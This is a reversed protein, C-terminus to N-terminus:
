KLVNLKQSKCVARFEPAYTCKITAVGLEYTGPRDLYYETEISHTGQGLGYYSYRVETDRPSVNKFSDSWSLQEVPEMCAAKSDIVTVMDYNRECTYTLRVTIRDGVHLEEKNTIIERKITMGSGRSEVDSIPQLFQAFVAGWSLGGSFKEIKLSKTSASMETEIYGENGQSDVILKEGDTYFVSSSDNSLYEDADILLAHVANVSDIPTDWKQTRKENLLWKQMEKFTTKDEPCLMYLAEMGAVHTPIKYSHWSFTARHTDFTRGRNEYNKTYQRLSEAYIMAREHEGAYELIIASMAKEHITQEHIDRELLPILYRYAKQADSSLVRNSIACNYMHQLMTFTPMYIMEGKEERRRLEKVQSIMEKDCFKFAKNLVKVLEDFSGGTFKQLRCMHMVIETTMYLSEPMGKFWRFGGGSGQLEQLKNILINSTRGLEKVPPVSINGYESVREQLYTTLLNCYLSVAISIANDSDNDTMAPLAKIALWMPNNTYQLSLQKRTSGEPLLVSTDIVETGVEDQSIVQTITMQSKNPLVPLTHQEGDSFDKGIAYIRCVYEKIEEDPTFQFTVTKSSEFLEFSKHDTFVTQENAANLLEFVVRGSIRRDSTSAVKVSIATVDGVRVFRPMNPQVMIEKRAVTEDEFVSYAMDQTHAFAKFKWTTLSDPLKFEITVEGNGDTRLVPMFFATESMDSRLQIREETGQDRRQLPEEEFCGFIRSERKDLRCKEASDFDLIDCSAMECSVKKASEFYKGICKHILSKFSNFHYPAKAPKLEHVYYLSISDIYEYCWQVDPKEWVLKPGFGKWPNPALKELAKDYLTAIVNATVNNGEKDKVSLTWIEQSGPTVKDRFTAWSIQLDQKPIPKTIIFNKTKMKKNRVWAYSVLLANGYEKKYQFHRNIMGSPAYEAGCELLKDGSFLNYLIYSDKDSCGVQIIVDDGNEPFIENSQYSWFDTEYPVNNSNKDFVQFEHEVKEDGYKAYLVHKGIGVKSIIIPENSQIPTIDMSDDLWYSIEKNLDKGSANKLAVVFSKKDSIEIIDEMQISMYYDRNSLPLVARATQMEGTTDVVDAEAIINMYLPRSLDNTYIIDSLLMPVEIVFRGDADTRATGVHYQREGYRGYYGGVEWYPNLFRWWWAVARKVRYKVEAGSIPMGAYSTAKGNIAITDGVKYPKTYDDLKVEFTPRKYEEIQITKQDKECIISYRGTEIENPIVFDYHAVGFEDTKIVTHEICRGYQQTLQADSTRQITKVKKEQNVYYRIFAVHITQGPRYISRDTIIETHEHICDQTYSYQYGSWIQEIFGYCDDKTYPFIGNEVNSYKKYNIIIEGNEDCSLTRKLLKGWYNMIDVKANPIPHGTMNDVVVVKLRKDPLFETISMVSSVHLMRIDSDGYNSKLEVMHIGLPLGDVEIQAEKTIYPFDNIYDCTKSFLPKSSAHAKLKKFDHRDANRGNLDTPYVSLTLRKINKIKLPIIFKQNPAVVQDFDATEFVPKELEKLQSELEKVHGDNEFKDLYTKIFSYKQEAYKNDADVSTGKPKPLLDNECIYKVAECVIPLDNYKSIIEALKEYKENDICYDKIIMHICSYCAAARNDTNKYYDYLVDYHECEIGIFSLLDNGFIISDEGKELWDIDNMPVSALYEPDSLALKFYEEKTKHENNDNNSYWNDAAKGAILYYLATMAKKNDDVSMVVSEEAAVLIESRLTWFVSLCSTLLACLNQHDRNNILENKADSFISRLTEPQDNLWAEKLKNITSDLDFKM